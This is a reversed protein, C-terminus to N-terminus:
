QTAQVEIKRPKASAAKPLHLTLVGAAYEARISAADIQESLRFTRHFDGLGYESWALAVQEPYRAAVKGRLTLVGDEFGIDLEEARVGPLDAVLLLEDKTELIDVLPRYVSGGRTQEASPAEVPNNQVDTAM